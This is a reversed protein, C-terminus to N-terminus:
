TFCSAACSYLRSRNGIAASWGRFEAVPTAEQCNRRETAPQRCVAHGLDVGRRYRGLGRPVSLPRPAGGLQPRIESRRARDLGEKAKEWNDWTVSPPMSYADKRIMEPDFVDFRSVPPSLYLWLGWGLASLLVVAGLLRLGQRWGWTAGAPPPRLDDPAPELACIERMTPAEFSAGCRCAVTQGAQRPEIAIEQGCVCPLLYKSSM